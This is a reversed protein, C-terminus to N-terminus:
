RLLVLLDKRRIGTRKMYRKDEETVFGAELLAWYPSDHHRYCLMGGLYNDYFDTKKIERPDKALKDVLWEVAAIRNQKKKFFIRPTSVMEWERIRERPYTKSAAAFPSGNFHHALLGGLRNRHFDKAVLNRPNKNLLQECLLRVAEVQAEEDDKWKPKILVKGSDPGKFWGHSIWFRDLLVDRRDREGQGLTIKPDRAVLKLEARSPLTAIKEM